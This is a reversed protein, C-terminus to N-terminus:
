GIIQVDEAGLCPVAVCVLVALLAWVGRMM